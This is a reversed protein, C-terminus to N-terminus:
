LSVVWKVFLWVALVCCVIDALVALGGIGGVIICIAVAFMMFAMIAIFVSLTIM